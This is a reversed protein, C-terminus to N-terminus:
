PRTVTVTLSYIEEEGADPQIDRDAKHDRAIAHAIEVEKGSRM